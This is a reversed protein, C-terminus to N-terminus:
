ILLVCSLFTPPRSSAPPSTPATRSVSWAPRPQSGGATWTAVLAPQILQERTATGSLLGPEGLSSDSCRSPARAISPADPSGAGEAVQACLAGQPEIAVHGDSGACLASRPQWALAVGIMLLSLPLRRLRPLFRTVRRTSVRFAAAACRATLWSHHISGAWWEAPM